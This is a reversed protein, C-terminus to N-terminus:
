IVVFERKKNERVRDAQEREQRKCCNCLTKGERKFYIIENSQTDCIDCKTM